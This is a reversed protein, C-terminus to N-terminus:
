PKWCGGLSSPLGGGCFQDQELNRGVKEKRLDWGEGGRVGSGAGPLQPTNGLGRGDAPLGPGFVRLAGQLKGQSQLERLLGQRRAAM